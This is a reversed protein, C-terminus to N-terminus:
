GYARNGRARAAAVGAMAGRMARQEVAALQSPTVIEGVAFSQAISVPAGGGASRVGLKGDMGRALPMVAEPGAEGLVGLGGAHGFATARDFVGGGAYFQVGNSWAGGSAQSATYAQFGKVLAGWAGTDEGKGSGFLAENIRAAIAQAVMRKLMDGWMKEINGFDGSLQAEITQAMTGQITRQAEDWFTSVEKAADSQTQTLRTFREDLADLGDAYQSASIDGAAFVDALKGYQATIADIQGQQTQGLLAQVDRLSDAYREVAAIQDPPIEVTIPGTIKARSAQLITGIDDVLKPDLGAASLEQLRQVQADIVALRVGDSQDALSMLSRTVSQSYDDWAAAAAPLKKAGKEAREGPDPLSPLAPAAPNVVGRGGGASGDSLRLLKSYYEVQKGLSAEAGKLKNLEVREFLPVDGDRAFKARLDALRDLDAKARQLAETANSDGRFFDRGAQAAFFGGFVETGVRAREIADNIAPLWSAAVSRAAGTFSAQLDAMQKNLRAAEDAQQATVTVNGAGKEALDKLLPALDAASKGLLVQMSRAKSADDAFGAYAESIRMLADAPDMARLASAELGIAKLAEAVDSGPKAATLSQNLKVMAQQVTDLTHGTRLATDELASIKEVTSGTADAVDNLADIGDVLRRAFDTIAGGAFAAAMAAAASTVATGVASWRSEMDKAARDTARTAKHLGEELKAMRAELDITITALAM